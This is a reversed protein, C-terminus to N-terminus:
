FTFIDMQKYPQSDQWIIKVREICDSDSSGRDRHMM